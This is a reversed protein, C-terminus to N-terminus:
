CCKAPFGRESLEWCVCCSWGVELSCRRGVSEELRANQNNTTNKSIQILHQKNAYCFMGIRWWVPPHQYFTSWFSTFSVGHSDGSPRWSQGFNPHRPLRAINKRLSISYLHLSVHASVANRFMMYIRDLDCITNCFINTISFYMIQLLM